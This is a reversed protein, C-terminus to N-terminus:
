LTGKLYRYKIALKRVASTDAKLARAIAAYSMHDNNVIFKIKSVFEPDSM